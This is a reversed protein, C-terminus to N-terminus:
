ANSTLRFRPARGAKVLVSLDLSALHGTYLVGTLSLRTGLSLRTRPRGPNRLQAPAPTSSGTPGMLVLM